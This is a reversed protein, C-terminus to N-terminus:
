LMVFTAIVKKFLASESFVCKKVENAQQTYTVTNEPHVSVESTLHSKVSECVYM